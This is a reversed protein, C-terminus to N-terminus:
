EVDYEYCWDEKFVISGDINPPFRRCTGSIEGVIEIESGIKREEFYKCDICSRKM